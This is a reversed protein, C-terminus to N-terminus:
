ELLPDIGHTDIFKYIYLVFGASMMSAEEYGGSLILSLIWPFLASLAVFAAINRNTFIQKNLQKLASLYRLPIYIFLLISAFLFPIIGFKMWFNLIGIHLVGTLRGEYIPSAIQGGLGRGWFLDSLSSDEIFFTLENVRSDGILIDMNFVSLLRQALYSDDGVLIYFLFLSFIIFAFLRLNVRKFTKQKQNFAYSVSFILILLMTILFSSRTVSRFAVFYGSALIALGSILKKVSGAPSLNILIILPAFLISSALFINEHSIRKLSMDNMTMLREGFFSSIVILLTLIIVMILLHTKVGPMRILLFAFAIGGLLWLFTRIDYNLLNVDLMDSSLFYALFQFVLFLYTMTLLLCVKKGLVKTIANINLFFLMILLFLAVDRGPVGLIYFRPVNLSYVTINKILDAIFLFFVAYLFFSNLCRIKM